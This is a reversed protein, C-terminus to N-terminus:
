DAEKGADNARQRLLDLEYLKLGDALRKIMILNQESTQNVSVTCICLACHWGAAAFHSVASNKGEETKRLHKGFLVAARITRSRNRQKKVLVLRCNNPSTIFFLTVM